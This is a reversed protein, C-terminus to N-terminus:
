RSQPAPAQTNQRQRQYDAIFKDVIEIGGFRAFDERTLGVIGSSVDVSFGRQLLSIMQGVKAEVLLHGLFHLEPPLGMDLGYARSFSLGARDAESWVVTAQYATRNQTDLLYLQSGRALERSLALQAGHTNLDQITCETTNKGDSDVVLGSFLVRKRGQRRREYPHPQAPVPSASV